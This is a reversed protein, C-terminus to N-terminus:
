VAHILRMEHRKLLNNVERATPMSPQAGTRTVSVAAVAAGFRVAEELGKGQMLAVSLGGNFADGAATTDVARVKFAPVMKRLGNAGAVYAGNSGMKIIVNPAGKSQLTQAFEAITAPSLDRCHIGCLTCTETENPTLFTVQRLMKRPIQRAPAPDLVLPVHLRHAAACLYEVTEMPIELQALIIGASGLLPLARELDGPLLRGNAGPIVTISNQGQRDISILAVGSATSSVTAVARVNVGAARLGQRLRSGFEDDGVKAVMSVPYGLRGVAVAQNAGKGGHFMQFSSGAVTEGPAPIREATCVLDLNVSGVVVISRRM